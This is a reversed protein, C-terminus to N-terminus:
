NFFFLFLIFFLRLKLDYQKLSVCAHLKLNKILIKFNITLMNFLEKKNM